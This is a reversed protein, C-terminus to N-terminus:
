PKKKKRSWVIIHLFLVFSFFLFRFRFLFLSFLAFCKTISIPVMHPDPSPAKLHDKQM